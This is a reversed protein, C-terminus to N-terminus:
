YIRAPTEVCRTTGKAASYERSNSEVGATATVSVMNNGSGNLYKVTIVDKAASGNITLVGAADLGITAASLVVRSELLEGACPHWPRNIRRRRDGVGRLFRRFLNLM